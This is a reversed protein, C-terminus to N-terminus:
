LYAMAGQMALEAARWTLEGTRPDPERTVSFLFVAARVDSESGEVIEGQKLTHTPSLFHFPFTPSHPHTLPPFHSRM